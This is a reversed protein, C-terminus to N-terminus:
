YVLQKWARLLRESDSCRFSESRDGRCTSAELLRTPEPLGQYSPPLPVEGQAPFMWTAEPIWSQVEASTLDKLFARARQAREQPLGKLQAAGEWEVPQGEEFLVARVSLRQGPKLQAQHYAQSSLYTWVLPAQHKLFLGYAASWSPPLALWQTLLGTWFAEWAAPVPFWFESAWLFARGPISTRPDELIFRRKWHPELLEKVSIREPVQVADPSNLDLLLSFIGKQFPVVPELYAALPAWQAQELGVVVDFPQRRESAAGAGWSPRRIREALQSSDGGSVWEVRCQCRSEFRKVMRGAFGEPDALSPYSLIRLDPWSSANARGASSGARPTAFLFFTSVM